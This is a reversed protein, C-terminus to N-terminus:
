APKMSDAEHVFNAGLQAHVLACLLDQHYQLVNPVKEDDALYSRLHAVM